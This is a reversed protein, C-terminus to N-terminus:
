TPKLWFGPAELLQLLEPEEECLDGPPPPLGLLPTEGGGGCSGLAWQMRQSHPQGLAPLEEGADWRTSSCASSEQQTVRVASSSIGEEAGAPM